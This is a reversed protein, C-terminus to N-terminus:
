AVGLRDLTAEARALLERAVRNKRPWLMDWTLKFAWPLALRVRDGRRVLAGAEVGAEHVAAMASGLARAPDPEPPPVVEGAHDMAVLARHARILREPDAVQPLRILRWGSPRPLDSVLAANTTTVPSAEPGVHSVLDLVVEGVV